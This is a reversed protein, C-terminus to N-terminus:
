HWHGMSPWVLTPHHRLMCQYHKYHWTIVITMKPLLFIPEQTQRFTKKDLYLYHGSLLLHFNSIVILPRNTCYLVAYVLFNVQQWFEWNNCGLMRYFRCIDNHLCNFWPLNREKRKKRNLKPENMWTLTVHPLFFNQQVQVFSTKIM